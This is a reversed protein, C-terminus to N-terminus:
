FWLSFTENEGDFLLTGKKLIDRGILAAVTHTAPAISVVQVEFAPRHTGLTLRVDSAVWVRGSRAPCARGPKGGDPVPGSTM